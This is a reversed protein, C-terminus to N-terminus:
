QGDAVGNGQLDAFEGLVVRRLGVLVHGVRVVALGVGGDVM